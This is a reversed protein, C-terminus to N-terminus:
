STINQYKTRRIMRRRGESILKAIEPESKDLVAAIQPYSYDMIDRLIVACRMEPPLDLLAQQAPEEGKFEVCEYYKIFEDWTRKLLFVDDKHNGPHTLFVNGTLVEAVKINGSLRYTFNYITRIYLFDV